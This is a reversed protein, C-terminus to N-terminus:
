ESWVLKHFLEVLTSDPMNKIVEVDTIYKHKINYIVSDRYEINYTLSDIIEKSPNAAQKYQNIEETLVKIEKDKTTIKNSLVIFIICFIIFIGVITAYGFYKM